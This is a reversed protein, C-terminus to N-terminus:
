FLLSSQRNKQFQRLASASLEGLYEPILHLKRSIERPRL